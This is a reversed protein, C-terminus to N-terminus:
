PTAWEQRFLAAIAKEAAEDALEDDDPDRDPDDDRAGDDDAPAAATPSAFPDAQQDRKALAELSFNQQQLYPTDGGTVPGLGFYKKRAENPAMAGASISEKAAKTATATDMRYLDDLDLETGYPAPLELGEDLLIEICEIPNQLTQAYYERGLAEINNYAPPPAVGIKYAPVRFATCVNEATWKLQEILQADVASMAMQEYKLGDGLIAVKGANMGSFNSEWEVKLRDATAQSITAPATLVGSPNSGNAFFNSSNHQIRLGQMAAVGCASIPSVGVLPHYLPVMVDHIIESAPATVEEPLTALHDVKLRYWVSGDPAVLPTVRLPDLAYLARVVRRQDREKIIYTNGHVLKSVMWQELFKIRTQYRNPKRLVPSFSPSSTETWIGNADVQVLKIRLKGIDSAILTVCAYVAAYTLVSDVTLELNRQWAGAFPERVVGGGFIPWWPGRREAPAMTGPPPTPAKTRTITLGFLNM